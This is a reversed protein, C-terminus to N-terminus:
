CGETWDEADVTLEGPNFARYFQPKGHPHADQEGFGWHEASILLAVKLRQGVHLRATRELETEQEATWFRSAIEKVTKGVTVADWLLQFDFTGLKGQVRAIAGPTL